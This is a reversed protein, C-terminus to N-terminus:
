PLPEFATGSVAMASVGDPIDGSLTRVIAHAVGENTLPTPWRNMYDEASIGAMAGYAKSAGAAVVSGQILQTPLVAVTRLGLNREDSLKQAYGALLWQMRKAGAYGGSLPSGNISAGSSVIVVTSGARLPLAFAQKMLHFSMQVDGNWAGSFSDWDFEDFRQARQTFGAAIVLMDPMTDRLLKNAFEADTADGAIVSLGTGAEKALAQLREAGRAVATVRVGDALLAQVTAKGVGSSGGIVLATKGRLTTM